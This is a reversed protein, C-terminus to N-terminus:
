HIAHTGAYLAFEAVAQRILNLGDRQQASIFVRHITGHTDREIRAPLGLNDIKNYVLIQPIEGAGIDTL